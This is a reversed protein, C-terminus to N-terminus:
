RRLPPRCFATGTCVLTAARALSALINTLTSSSQVVALVNKVYMSTHKPGACSRDSHASISPQLCRAYLYLSRIYQQYFPAQIRCEACPGRLFWSRVSWVPTVLVVASLAADNLVYFTM